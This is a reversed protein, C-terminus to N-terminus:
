KLGIRKKFESVNSEREALKSAAKKAFREAEKDSDYGTTVSLGGTRAKLQMFQEVSAAVGMSQKAMKALWYRDGRSEPTKIDLAKAAKMEELFFDLAVGQVEELKERMEESLM